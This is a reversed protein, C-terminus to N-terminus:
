TFQSSRTWGALRETHGPRIVAGNFGDACRIHASVGGFLLFAMNPRIAQCLARAHSPSVIARVFITRAM